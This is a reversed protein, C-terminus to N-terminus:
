TVPLPQLSVLFTFSGYRRLLTLSILLQDEAVHLLSRDEEEILVIRWGCSGNRFYKWKEGHGGELDASDWAGFDNM